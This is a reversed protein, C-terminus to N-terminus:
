IKVNLSHFHPDSVMSLLVSSMVTARLDKNISASHLEENIQEAIALLVHEEAILENLAGTNNDVLYRAQARSLFGTIKKNYTVSVVEGNKLVIATEVLYGEDDSGGVGTIICARIFKSKNIDDAYAKAERVAKRIEDMSGKAEIVWYFSESIKVVYEPKQKGLTLGIEPHDLCEQQTYLEGREGLRTEQIGDSTQSITRSSRIRGLSQDERPELWICIEGNGQEDFLLTVDRALAVTIHLLRKRHAGVAM